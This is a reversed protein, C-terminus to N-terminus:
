IVPQVQPLKIFDNVQQLTFQWIGGKKEGMLNGQSLHNRLTRDTLGTILAVDQITYHEKM